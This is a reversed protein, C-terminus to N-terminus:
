IFLRVIQKQDLKQLVQHEVDSYDNKLTIILSLDPYKEVMDEFSYVLIGELSTGQLAPSNDCIGVPFPISHKSFFQLM